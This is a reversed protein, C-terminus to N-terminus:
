HFPYEKSKIKEYLYHRTDSDDVRDFDSVFKMLLPTVNVNEKFVAKALLFQIQELIDFISEVEEFSKATEIVYLLSIVKQQIYEIETNSHTKLKQEILELLYIM